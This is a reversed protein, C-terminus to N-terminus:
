PVPGYGLAVDVQVGSQSSLRWPAQTLAAPLVLTEGRALTERRGDPGLLQVPDKLCTVSAPGTRLALRTERGTASSIQYRDLAFHATQLLRSMFGEQPFGLAHTSTRLIEGPIPELHAIRCFQDLQEDLREIPWPRGWVDVPEAFISRDSVQQIELFAVGHAAHPTGPPVRVVDGARVRYRAMVDRVRGQRALKGIEEASVPRVFGLRVESDDTARLILWAEEKGPDPGPLGKAQDDNPHVHVPLWGSVDLLKLLFPFNAPGEHNPGWLVKPFRRAVDPLSLGSLPGNAVVSPILPYPSVEWSEAAGEEPLPKGLLGLARGGFTYNRFLPEFRLAYPEPIGSFDGDTM